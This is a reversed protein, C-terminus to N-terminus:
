HKGERGARGGPFTHHPLHHPCHTFPSPRPFWCCLFLAFRVSFLSLVIFFIYYPHSSNPSLLHLSSTSVHCSPFILYRFALAFPLLLIYFLPLFFVYFFLPFVCFLPLPSFSVHILLLISMLSILLSLLYHSLPCPNVLVVLWSLHFKTKCGVHVDSVVKRHVRTAPEREFSRSRGRIHAHHTHTQIIAHLRTHTRAQVRTYAQKHTYMPQIHLQQKRYTYTWSLRTWCLPLPFSNIHARGEARGEVQGDEIGGQRYETM